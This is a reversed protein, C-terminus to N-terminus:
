WLTLCLRVRAFCFTNLVVHLLLGGCVVSVFMCLTNVAVATACVCM